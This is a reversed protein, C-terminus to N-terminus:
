EPLKMGMQRALANLDVGRQKAMNMAIRRLQNEDKGGIIAKAQRAPEGGIQDLIQMPNMGNMMRSMIAQMPDSATRQAPPTAMRPPAPFPIMKSM